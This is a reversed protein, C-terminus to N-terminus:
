KLVNELLWEKSMTGKVLSKLYGFAYGFKIGDLQYGDCCIGHGMIEDFYAFTVDNFDVYLTGHSTTYYNTPQFDRSYRIGNGKCFDRVMKKMIQKPTM